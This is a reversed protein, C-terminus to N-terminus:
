NFCGVFEISDYGIKDWGDCDWTNVAYSVYGIMQYTDMGYDKVFVDAELYDIYNDIFEKTLDVAYDIASDMDGFFATSEDIYDQVFSMDYVKVMYESM